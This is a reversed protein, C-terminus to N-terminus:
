RYHKISLAGIHDEIITTFRYGRSYQLILRKLKGNSKKVIESREDMRNNNKDGDLHIHRTHTTGSAM